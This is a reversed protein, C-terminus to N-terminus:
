AFAAKRTVCATCEGCPGGERYCSWSRQILDMHEPVNQQAWQVIEAKPHKAWPTVVQVLEDDGLGENIANEFAGVFAASCDPFGCVDGANFGVVLEVKSRPWLMLARAAGVSLLVPNRVPVFAADVGAAQGAPRSQFLGTTAGYFASAVDCRHFPVGLERSIAIAAACERQGSPQGYYIFLAEIATQRERKRAWMLAATSDLGGSLLVLTKDITM